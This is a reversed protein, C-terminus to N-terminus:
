FPRAQRYEFSFDRQAQSFCGECAEILSPNVGCREFVAQWINMVRNKLDEVLFSAEETSLMFDGAASLLNEITAQRGDKGLVLATRHETSRQVRPLVDYLPSIGWSGNRRLFGHNRVHDDDNNCFISFAVRRFLDRAHANVSGGCHKEMARVIDAYSHHYASLDDQDGLLTYASVFPLRNEIRGNRVECDFREILYIDAGEHDIVCVEPVDFDCESAIRMVAFERRVANNRDNPPPFKALWAKGEYIIGAKPQGGGLGTAADLSGTEVIQERPVAELDAAMEVLTGLDLGGTGLAEPGGNPLSPSVPGTSVSFALNGVRSTGSAALYELESLQRGVVHDLVTRGWKDPAADRLGGFVDGPIDTEFETDPNDPLPLREPDPSYADLRKLFSPAYKFSFAGHADGRSSLMGLPVFGDDGM